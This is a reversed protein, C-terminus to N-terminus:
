SGAWGSERRDRGSMRSVSRGAQGSVLGPSGRAPSEAGVSLSGLGPGRQSPRGAQSALGAPPSLRHSPGSVLGLRVRAVRSARATDLLRTAASEGAGSESDAWLM